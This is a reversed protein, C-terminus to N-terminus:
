YRMGLLIGGILAFLPLAYAIFAAFLVNRHDMDIEVHDGMKANIPNIADM